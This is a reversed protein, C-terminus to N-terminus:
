GYIAMTTPLLDHLFAPLCAEVKLLFALLLVFDFLHYTGHPLQGLLCGGLRDNAFEGLQPEM